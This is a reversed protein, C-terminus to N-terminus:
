QSDFISQIIKTDDEIGNGDAGNAKVNITIGAWIQKKIESANTIFPKLSNKNDINYYIDKKLSDSSYKLYDNQSFIIGSSLALLLISLLLNSKM